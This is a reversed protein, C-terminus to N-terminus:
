YKRFLIRCVESNFECTCSKWVRMRVSSFVMANHCIEIKFINIVEISCLLYRIFFCQDKYNTVIQHRFIDTSFLIRVDKSLQFQKLIQLIFLSYTVLVMSICLCTFTEKVRYPEMISVLVGCLTYMISECVKVGLHPKCMGNQFLYMEYFTHTFITCKLRNLLIIVKLRCIKASNQWM